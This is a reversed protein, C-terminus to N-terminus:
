AARRAYFTFLWQVDSDNSVMNTGLSVAQAVQAVDNDYTKKRIKELEEIVGKISSQRVAQDIKSLTGYLFKRVDEFYKEEDFEQIGLKQILEWYRSEYQPKLSNRAEDYEDSLRTLEVRTLTKGVLANYKAILANTFNLIVYNAVSRPLLDAYPGLKKIIERVDEPSPQVLRGRIENRFNELLEETEESVICKALYGSIENMNIITPLYNQYRSLKELLEKEGNEAATIIINADVFFKANNAMNALIEARKKEYAM